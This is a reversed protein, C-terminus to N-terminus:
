KQSQIYQSLSRLGAEVDLIKGGFSARVYGDVGFPAGPVFVVNAEQLIKMCWALSDTEEVGFDKLSIFFYLGAQAPSLIVGFYKQFNQAFADRRLQMEANIKPILESANQIAALAAWQSISSTGTTSQSQLTELMAILDKPGFVFGVRWGTMAFHKSCSQVLITSESYEGFEGASVFEANDYVLGSYVEDSIVILGKEHAKKLLAALEERTYLVGSPNGGNNLILIKTKESCLLEIDEPRCKWGRSEDSHIIKPVGFFLEVMSPYSVWYPVPILVEDGPELLAQFIMLLGHKGGCTVITNEKQFQSSFQANIWTAAAERLEPIGAPPTYFTKGQKLAEIAANQIIEPTEIMPEGVTLNYVLEGQKKKAAALSNMAITASPPINIKSSLKM